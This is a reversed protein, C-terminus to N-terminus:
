KILKFAINAVRSFQDFTGNVMRAIKAQNDPNAATYVALIASATFSDILVRKKRNGYRFYIPAERLADVGPTREPFMHAM